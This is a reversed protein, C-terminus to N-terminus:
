VGTTALTDASGPALLEQFSRFEARAGALGHAQFLLSGVL